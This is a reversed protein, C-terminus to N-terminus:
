NAFHKGIAGKFQEQQNESAKEYQKVIIDELKELIWDAAQVALPIAKAKLEDLAHGIYTLAQHKLYEA